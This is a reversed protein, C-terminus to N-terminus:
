FSEPGDSSLVDFVDKPRAELAAEIAEGRTGFVGISKSPYGPQGERHVEYWRDPSDYGRVECYTVQIGPPIQPDQVPTSTAM